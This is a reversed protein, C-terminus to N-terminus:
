KTFPMDQTLWNFNLSKKPPEYLLHKLDELIHISICSKGKVQTALIHYIIYTETM